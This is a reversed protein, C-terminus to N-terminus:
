GLTLEVEWGAADLEARSYTLESRNSVEVSYFDPPNGPLAVAFPLVCAGYYRAPEVASTDNYLSPDNADYLRDIDAPQRDSDYVRYEGIDLRGVAITAGDGDRVVVTAGERQDAYGGAGECHTQEDGHRDTVANSWDSLTDHWTDAIEPANGPGGPNITVTGLLTREPEDAEAVAQSGCGAALAALLLIAVTNVKLHPGEM